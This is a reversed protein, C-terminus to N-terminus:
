RAVADHWPGEYSRDAAWGRWFRRTAELRAEVERRAPIVLPEQHAVALVLLARQGEALEFRGSVSGQECSPLGAEWACVALALSGSAAVPVGSRMALSAERRGYDFRPTVRWHMPVRGAVWEVQRVLERFPALGVAPLLM